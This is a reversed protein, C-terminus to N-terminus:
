FAVNTMIYAWKVDEAEGTRSDIRTRGVIGLADKAIVYSGGVVFTAQKSYKFSLTVDLEEGLRASSLARKKALRFSHLDFGLTLGKKPSLALKVALDVLGQGNTHVPINLFLDAFGYFKHNTAFLTNFVKTKDDGPDEDGSLLDGWLSLKAKDSLRFGIRAGIMYAAIDDLFSEGAQYSGEARYTLKGSKGVLRAGMTYIELGLPGSDRHYLAYLDLAGQNSLSVTVYAGGFYSNSSVKPATEDGTRMLFFDVKGGKPKDSIRIGDFARGQQTWGVAGILRQGGLSMEQRGIRIDISTEGVNGFTMYGQHLDFNDARFDDLTNLEEGWLRVDQFQIFVGIDRDLSAKIDARVRMTTTVDHGPGVPQRVEFRPRIQGGVVVNTEAKIPLAILCSLVFWGLLSM